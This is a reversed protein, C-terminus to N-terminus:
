VSSGNDAEKLREFLVKGLGIGGGRSLELALNEDFMADMIEREHSKGLIGEGAFATRMSKLMYTMFISEFEECIGKLRASAGEQNAEMLPHIAAIGKLM